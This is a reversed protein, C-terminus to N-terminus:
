DVGRITGELSCNFDYSRANIQCFDTCNDFVRDYLIPIERDGIKRAVAELTVRM